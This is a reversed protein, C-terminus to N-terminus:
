ELGFLRVVVDRVLRDIQEATRRMVKGSKGLPDTISHTTDPRSRVRRLDAAYVLARARALADMDVVPADLLAALEGLLFTRGADAGGEVVAISVHSPEFGLVLDAGDLADSELARASHGRLDVGLRRGAEIAEPLASVGGLDLMGFSSVVVDVDATYTRFLAEALPSRARNGTCLFVTQFPRDRVWHRHV